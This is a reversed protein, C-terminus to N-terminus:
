KTPCTLQIVSRSSVYDLTPFCVRVLSQEQKDWSTERNDNQDIRECISRHLPSHRAKEIATGNRRRLPRGVQCNVLPCCGVDDEDCLSYLFIQILASEGSGTM